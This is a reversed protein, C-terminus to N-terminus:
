EGKVKMQLKTVALMLLVEESNAGRSLDNIPKALGQLIPGVARVGAIRQVLKYGINGSNLDPFILINAKGELVSNPCKQKAVSPVLAADLQVEGDVILSSNKRRVLAYAEKVKQINEDKVNENAKTSYSLMAVRPEEGVLQSATKTTSITIEALEEPSPNTNVACDAFIMVGKDGLLSGKPMEMVMCSSATKVGEATGVLQFAARLVDGTHAQVGALMGEAHGMRVMLAAIVVPHAVIEKAMELTVGKHKRAEYYANAYKPDEVAKKFDVLTVEHLARRSLSQRMRVEDGLLIIGGIGVQVAMEAMELIRPDDGEPFVVRGSIFVAEQLWDDFITHEVKKKKGFM